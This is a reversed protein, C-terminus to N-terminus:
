IRTLILRHMGLLICKQSDVFLFYGTKTTKDPSGYMDIDIGAIDSANVGNVTQGDTFAVDPDTTASDPGSFNIIGSLAYSAQPLGVFLNTSIVTIMLCVLALQKIKNGIGRFM